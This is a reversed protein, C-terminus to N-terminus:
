RSRVVVRCSLDGSYHFCVRNSFVSSLSFRDLRGPLRHSRSILLCIVLLLFLLLHYERAGPLTPAFLGLSIGHPQYSSKASRDPRRFPPHALNSDVIQCSLQFNFAFRNEFYKRLDPNGLLLAM